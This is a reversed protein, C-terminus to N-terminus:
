KSTESQWNALLTDSQVQQGQTVLVEAITGAKTAQVEFEMKMSELILLTQREQVASGKSVLIKIVKGPVPALIDHAHAGSKGATSSEDDKHKDFYTEGEINLWRILIGKDRTVCYTFPSNEIWGKGLKTERSGYREPNRAIMESSYSINSANANNKTFINRTLTEISVESATTRISGLTQLLTKALGDTRAKRSESAQKLNQNEEEIYKTTPQARAFGPSQLVDLLFSANSIPMALVSNKLATILKAIAEDRTTGTAILKAIMPDFRPTVEDIVDIGAEWRIGQSHYPLFGYVPGPAPLFNNKTDEAYLRLEISHGQPKLNIQDKLSEGMAIRLQWAVLDEGFIQETVPHEVQLRTNMELFFFNEKERHEPAWDMIFEVTGASFYHVGKALAVAADQMRKRTEDRLGPAPAEEIIKQHRRQVSCDRDGLAYVNGHQDGLIQVEIHRPHEVYREVILTSDGFSNLAESQARNISEEIDKTDRVIRMGKGGGGMAAKLLIPFGHDRVFDNVSQILEAPSNNKMRELGPVVPVKYDKAIARAEAKSAMKSISDPSPGVWTLGNKIVLAAFGASESLFGFGPHLADCGGQIAFQVMREGNLYLAPNEEDVCILETVLGKLYGPAAPGSYLAVTEIGLSQAGLAIRRAIEGRNAIFLRRIQTKMM